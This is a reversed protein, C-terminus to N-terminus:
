STPVSLGAQPHLGAAIRTLGEMVGLSADTDAVPLEVLRGKRVAPIDPFTETLFKKASAFDQGQYTGVLIVDADIASLEERSVDAEAPFVNRGGATTIESDYIGEALVHLPGTGGQHFAVEVPDLGAVADTVVKKQIQMGTIITGAQQSRDSIKGLDRLTKAPTDITMERVQALDCANAGYVQSGGQEIQEVSAYGSSTDFTLSRGCNEITVPYGAASAQGSSASGASGAPASPGGCAALLAVATVLVASTPASRRHLRLM